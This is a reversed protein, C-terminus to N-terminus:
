ECGCGIARSESVGIEEVEEELRWVALASNAKEDDVIRGVVGPSCRETPRKYGSGAVLRGLEGETM